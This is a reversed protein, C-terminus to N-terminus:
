RGDIMEAFERPVYPTYVFSPEWFMTAAERRRQGQLRLDEASGPFPENIGMEERFRKEWYWKLRRLNLDM